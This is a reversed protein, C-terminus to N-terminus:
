ELPAIAVLDLGKRALSWNMALERRHERTWRRVLRM